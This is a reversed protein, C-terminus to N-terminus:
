RTNRCEGSGRDCEFHRSRPRHRCLRGGVRSRDRGATPYGHERSRDVGRGVLHWVGRDPTATGRGGPGARARLTETIEARVAERLRGALDTPRQTTFVAASLITNPDIMRAALYERLPRYANYAHTLRADSPPSAALMPGFDADREIPRNMTDRLATTLVAAYTHGPNMPVGPGTGVILHNTCVYQNRGSNIGLGMAGPTSRDTLDVIYVSNGLSLSGFDM